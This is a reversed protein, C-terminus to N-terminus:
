MSIYPVLQSPSDPNLGLQLAKYYAFAQLVAIGYLATVESSLNNGISFIWDANDFTGNDVIAMIKTGKKKVDAAISEEHNRAENNSIICVLSNEDLRVIPGHRLELVSYYNAPFMAMEIGIYAGEVAAGYQKGSGLVVLYNCDKFDEIILSIKAQMNPFLDPALNLYCIIDNILKTDNGLLASIATMCLYLNSFSRTQCVSKENAWPLLLTSNSLNELISDTHEIISFVRIDGYAKRLIEIAKLVETTKGSRSPVIVLPKKFCNSYYGPNMLVDGAKVAFSRMGTKEAFTM